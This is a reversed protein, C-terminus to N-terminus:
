EPKLELHVTKQAGLIIIGNDFKNEMREIRKEQYGFDKALLDIKGEVRTAYRSIFVVHGIVVIALAAVAVDSNM